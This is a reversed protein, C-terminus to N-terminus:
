RGREIRYVIEVGTRSEPRVRMRYESATSFYESEVVTIALHLNCFTSLCVKRNISKLRFCSSVPHHPLAQRFWGTILKSGQKETM